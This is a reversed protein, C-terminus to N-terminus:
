DVIVETMLKKYLSPKEKLHSLCYSTYRKFNEEDMFGKCVPTPSDVDEVYYVCQICSKQRSCQQCQKAFKHLYDNFKGAVGEIDLLVEGDTIQGVAFNHDIRECQLIKGNVTVFMKKSFPTCTGTPSYTIKENDRFLEAYNGFVNGSYRHLYILLDNTQPNRMFMEDVLEHYNESSAMSEAKNRYTAEYEKAKEPRISSNNLESITPLKGFESKIFSNVGEVTSRNHLVANFDVKREFFDPYKAQLKKINNFVADFSNRGNHTVRYSHATEDGDLSILLSFDKEVLYDMCKDLLVANTTMSYVFRRNLNLEETYKVTKRIFDMNMLPEGGYFSIYTEPLPSDAINNAWIDALYDIIMKAKEFDLYRTERKDYGFYLDGYGCYRCNLNCADTVEFTLQRLNVLCSHINKSTIYNPM